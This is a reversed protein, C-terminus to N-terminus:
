LERRRLAGKNRACDWDFAFRLADLIEIPKRLFVPLTLKSDPRWFKNIQLFVPNKQFEDINLSILHDITNKSDDFKPSVLRNYEFLSLYCVLPLFLFCTRIYKSERTLTPEASPEFVHRRPSSDNLLSSSGSEKSRQSHSLATM